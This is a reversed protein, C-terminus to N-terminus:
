EELLSDFVFKVDIEYTVFVDRASLMSEIFKCLYWDDHVFVCRKRHPIIWMRSM